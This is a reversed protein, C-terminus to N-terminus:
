RSSNSGTFKSERQLYAQGTIFLIFQTIFQSIFRAAWARLSDYRLGTLPLTVAYGLLM